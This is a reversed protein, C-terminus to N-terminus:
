SLDKVLQKFWKADRVSVLYPSARLEDVSPLTGANGARKLWERCLDAKGARANICALLWAGAGPQAQEAKMLADKAELLIQERTPGQAMDAQLMQVQAFQVHRTADDPTPADTM